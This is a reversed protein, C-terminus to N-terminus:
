SAFGLSRTRGPLGTHGAGTLDARVGAFGGPRGAALRAKGVQFARACYPTKLLPSPEADRQALRRSRGRMWDPSSADPMGQRVSPGKLRAAERLDSEKARLGGLEEGRIFPECTM